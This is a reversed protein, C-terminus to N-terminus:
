RPVKTSTLFNLERNFIQGTKPEFKRFKRALTPAIHFFNFFNGKRARASACAFVDTVDGLANFGKRPRHRKTADARLRTNLWADDAADNIALPAAGCFRCRSRKIGEGKRQQRRARDGLGSGVPCRAAERPHTSRRLHPPRLPAASADAGGM